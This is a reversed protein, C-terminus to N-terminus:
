SSRESNQPGCKVNNKRNKKSRVLVAITRKNQTCLRTLSEKGSIGPLWAKFDIWPSGRPPVIDPYTKRAPCQLNGSNCQLRVTGKVSHMPRCYTRSLVRKGPSGGLCNASSRKDCAKRLDQSPPAVTSRQGFHALITLPGPFFRFCM